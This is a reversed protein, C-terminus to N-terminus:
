KKEKALRIWAKVIGNIVMFILWVFLSALWSFEYPFILSGIWVVLSCGLYSIGLIALWIIFILLLVVVVPTDDKFKMKLKM